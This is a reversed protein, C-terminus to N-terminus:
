SRVAVRVTRDVRSLATKHVKGLTLRHMLKPILDRILLEVRQQPKLPARRLNSLGAELTESYSEVKGARGVKIGLYKFSENLGLAPCHEEDGLRLFPRTDYFYTKAHRDTGLSLTQCKRSNLDLGAKSLGSTVADCLHQLGFKTEAAIVLDDAFAILSVREGGIKVGLSTERCLDSAVEDIVM